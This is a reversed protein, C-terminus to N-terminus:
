NGTLLEKLASRAALPDGRDIAGAAAALLRAQRETFAMAATPQLGGLGLRGRIAQRLAGIGALTRASVGVEAVGDPALLDCKGAVNLVRPHARLRRLLQHYASDAPGATVCLILDASAIREWARRVAEADVGDADEWLGATDTLWIPVGDAEALARVWDRTTGPTESVISVNRGVLANALASKGVNPPGAIVVEAPELLRRMLPLAGAAARLDAPDPRDSAALLSLGGSWQATVAAAVLPTAAVRLASLMERAVAANDLGPRPVALAPDVPEDALVEAGCASLLTLVRRAVHPGGHINIEAAAEGGPAVIAEDLVEEGDVIWGLALAGPAPVSRRPRFIRRLIEGTGPGALAIVAIGGRAPATLLRATTATPSV